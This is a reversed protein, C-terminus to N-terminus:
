KSKDMDIIKIKGSINPNYLTSYIFDVAFISLIIICIITLVKKNAKDILKQVGPVIKYIVILGSLGFALSYPLCIRGNINFPKDTYNWWSMGYTYELYLSTCYESITCIVFSGIFILWKKDKYENLLIYILLSGTGYIPLWPGHLMGSNILNGNKLFEWIVEWFWGIFCSILFILVYKCFKNSENKKM